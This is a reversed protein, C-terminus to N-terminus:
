RAPLVCLSVISLLRRGGRGAAEVLGREETDQRGHLGESLLPEFRPEGIARELRIRRNPAM